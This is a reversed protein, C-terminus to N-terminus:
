AHHADRERSRINISLVDSEDAIFADEKGVTTKIGKCLPGGM